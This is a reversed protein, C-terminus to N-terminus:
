IFIDGIKVVAKKSVWGSMMIKVVEGPISSGIGATVPCSTAHTRSLDWRQCMSVGM